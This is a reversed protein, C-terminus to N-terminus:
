LLLVPSEWGPVAANLIIWDVLYVLLSLWLGPKGQINELWKSFGLDGSESVTVGGSELGSVFPNDQSGALGAKLLAYYVCLRGVWLVPAELLSAHTTTTKTLNRPSTKQPTRHPYFLLKQLTKSPQSPFLSKPLLNNFHSQHQFPSSSTILNTIVQMQM